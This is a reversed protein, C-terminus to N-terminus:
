IYKHRSPYRDSVRRGRLVCLRRGRRGTDIGGSREQAWQKATNAVPQEQCEKDEGEGVDAATM